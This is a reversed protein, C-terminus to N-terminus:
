DVVYLRSSYLYSMNRLANAYATHEGTGKYVWSVVESKYFGLSCPDGKRLLAKRCITQVMSLWGGEGTQQPTLFWSSASSAHRETASKSPSSHLDGGRQNSGAM